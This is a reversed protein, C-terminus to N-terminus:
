FDMDESLDKVQRELKRITVSAEMERKKRRERFRASAGANRKRKEDSARSANGTEVPLSRLGAATKINMMTYTGSGQSTSIAVSGELREQEQKVQDGEVSPEATSTYRSLQMPM